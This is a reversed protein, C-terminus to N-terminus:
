IPTPTEFWSLIDFNWLFRLFELKLSFFFGKMMKNRLFNEIKPKNANYSKLNRVEVLFLFCKMMKNRQFNEIIQKQKRNKSTYITSINTNQFMGNIIRQNNFFLSLSVPSITKLKEEFTRQLRGKLFRRIAVNLSCM